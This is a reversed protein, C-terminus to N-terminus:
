KTRYVENLMMCVSAYGFEKSEPIHKGFPCDGCNPNECQTIGSKYIVEKIDELNPLKTKDSM